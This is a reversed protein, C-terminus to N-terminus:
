MGEQPQAALARIEKAIGRTKNASFLYDDAAEDHGRYGTMDALKMCGTAQNEYHVAKEDFHRAAEEMAERRAQATAENIAATIMERLEEEYGDSRYCCENAKAAIAAAKRDIEQQNM